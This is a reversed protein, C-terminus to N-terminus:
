SWLTFVSGKVLIFIPRRFYVSGLGSGWFLHLGRVLIWFLYPGQFFQLGWVLDWYSQQVWFLQLGLSSWLIVLSGMGSGLFIVPMLGCFLYLGQVLVQFLFGLHFASWLDRFVSGLSGFCTFLGFRLIVVSGLGSGLGSNGVEDMMKKPCSFWLDHLVLM